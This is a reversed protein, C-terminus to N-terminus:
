LITRIGEQVINVAPPLSKELKPITEEGRVMGSDIPIVIKEELHIKMVTPTPSGNEGESIIETRYNIDERVHTKPEGISKSPRQIHVKEGM